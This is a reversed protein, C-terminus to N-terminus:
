PTTATKSGLRACRDLHPHKAIEEALPERWIPRLADVTAPDWDIPGFPPEPQYEMGRQILKAADEGVLRAALHLGGDIGASVGATTLYKGDEVWLRLVDHDSTMGAEDLILVDRSGLTLRQRDLRALLSAVTRSELRAEAGLTRAAQGFTATGLVRFGAREYADRM